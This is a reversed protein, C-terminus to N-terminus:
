DEARRIFGLTVLQGDHVIPIQHLVAPFTTGDSRRAVYEIRVPRTEEAFHKMYTHIVLDISGEDVCEDLYSEMAKFHQLSMGLM